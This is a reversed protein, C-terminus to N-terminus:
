NEPSWEVKPRKDKMDTAFYTSDNNSKPTEM